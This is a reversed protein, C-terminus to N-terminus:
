AQSRNRVMALAGTSDNFEYKELKIFYNMQVDSGQADAGRIYLDQVVLNDPDVQTYDYSMKADNGDFAFLAWGIEENNDWRWNTGLSGDDDTMLKATLNLANTDTIDNPSIRFEVVKYGTDFRGDFLIIRHTSDNSLIRGRTTYEGIKKM